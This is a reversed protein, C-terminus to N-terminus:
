HSDYSIRELENIRRELDMLLCKNNLCPKKYVRCEDERKNSFDEDDHQILHPCEWWFGEGSM